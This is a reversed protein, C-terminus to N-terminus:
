EKPKVKRTRKPPAEATADSVPAKAVRPKRTVKPKEVPAVVKEIPVWQLEIQRKDLDARLVRVRVTDGPRLIQGSIVGKAKL